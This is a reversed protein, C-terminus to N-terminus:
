ARCLSKGTHTRMRQLRGSSPMRRHLYRCCRLRRTASALQRAISLLPEFSPTRRRDADYRRAARCMPLAPRSLPARCYRDVFLIAVCRPLPSGHRVHMQKFHVVDQGSRPEEIEEAIDIAIAHEGAAVRLREVRAPHRCEVFDVAIRPASSL